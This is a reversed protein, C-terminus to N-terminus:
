PKGHALIASFERKIRGRRFRRNKFENFNIEIWSDRENGNAIAKFLDAGSDFSPYDDDSFKPPTKQLENRQIKTEANAYSLFFDFKSKPTIEVTKWPLLTFSYNYFKSGYHIRVSHVFLPTDKTQNILSVFFVPTANSPKANTFTFINIRFPIRAELVDLGLRVFDKIWAIPIV